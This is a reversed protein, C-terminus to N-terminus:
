CFRCARPLGDVMTEARRAQLSPLMVEIRGHVSIMEDDLVVLFRAFLTEEM